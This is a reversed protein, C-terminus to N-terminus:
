RRPIGTYRFEGAVELITSDSVGGGPEQPLAAMQDSRALNTTGIQEIEMRRDGGRNLFQMFAVEQSQNRLDVYSLRIQRAMSISVDCPVKDANRKFAEQIEGLFPPAREAFDSPFCYDFGRRNSTPVQRSGSPQWDIRYTRSGSQASGACNALQIAVTDFFPAFPRHVNKQECFVGAASDLQFHSVPPLEGEVALGQNERQLLVTMAIAFVLVALLCLLAFGQWQRLKPVVGLKIIERYLLYVVGISLATVGGAKLLSPLLETPM